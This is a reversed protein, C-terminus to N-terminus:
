LEDGPLPERKPVRDLVKKFAGKRAKKARAAIYDETTIYETLVDVPTERYDYMIVTQGDIRYATRTRAAFWRILGRLTMVDRRLHFEDFADVAAAADFEISLPPSGDCHQLITSNVLDVFRDVSTGSLDVRLVGVGDLVYRGQEHLRSEPGTGISLQCFSPNTSFDLCGPTGELVIGTGKGM